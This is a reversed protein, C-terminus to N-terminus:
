HSTGLDNKLLRQLLRHLLYGEKCSTSWKGCITRGISISLTGESTRQLGPDKFKLNQIERAPRTFYNNKPILLKPRHLCHCHCHCYCHCHNHRKSLQNLVNSYRSRKNLQRTAATPM